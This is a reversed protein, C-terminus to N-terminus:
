DAAPVRSSKMPPSAVGQRWESFLRGKQYATGGTRTGPVREILDRQALRGFIEKVVYDAQIHCIERAEKNKITDHTELYELILTEPSALAEHKITVLVGNQLNVIVPEKLGMKHM